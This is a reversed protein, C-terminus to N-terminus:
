PVRAWLGFPTGNYTGGVGVTANPNLLEVHGDCLLYNWKQNHLPDNYEGAGGTQDYPNDASSLGGGGDGMCNWRKRMELLCLTRAPTPVRSMPYSLAYTNSIGYGTWANVGGWDDSWVVGDTDHGGPYRGGGRGGRSITYSRTIGWNPPAWSKTESPCLYISNGKINQAANRIDLGGTSAGVLNSALSRGDYGNLLDDWSIANNAMEAPTYYERNDDCYQAMALGLQKFQNACGAQRATGRATGLAPLLMAALIAIIAIVV